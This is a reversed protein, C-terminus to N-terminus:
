LAGTVQSRGADGVISPDSPNLLRRGLGARAETIAVLERKTTSM